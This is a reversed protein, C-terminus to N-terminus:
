SKLAVDKIALLEFLRFDVETLFAVLWVGNKALAVMKSIFKM